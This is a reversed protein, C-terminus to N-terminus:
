APLVQIPRMMENAEHELLHCHWSYRGAYGEWPIIIRTVMSAHARVTDKWGMENAEPTIAEGTWLFKRHNQYTYTDFARRDLIQFRVLHLHIPHTDDTLNILNWIETTGLRPDETVPDQWTKRNLLMRMSEGKGTELEHLTLDRSRVALAEPLRTISRLKSPVASHDEVPQRGVRFQLVQSVDNHLELTAGRMQAFDIVFELREAPALAIAKMAVPAALMGQDGGIQMLEAGNSLSLNFFRGNAANLVRFRYRRAEVEFYPAIKGNVLVVNGFVEPV